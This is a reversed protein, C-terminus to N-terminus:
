DRDVARDYRDLVAVLDDGSKANRLATLLPAGVVMRALKAMMMLQAQRQGPPALTALCVDVVGEPTGYDVPPVLVFVGLATGCLEPLTGHPLALGDGVATNQARERTRLADLVSAGTAEELRTGFADAIHAFLADKSSAAVGVEAVTVFDRLRRSTAPTAQYGSFASQPLGRPSQLKLVSCAAREALRDRSSGRIRGLWSTQPEMSTIILDHGHSLDCLAAVVDESELLMVEPDHQSLDRLQDLYDAEAARLTPNAAPSLHRVFTLHSRHITALRDATGVVLADHPGPEVHVVIRRFYRIGADHFVALNTRLHDRLWGVPSRVTLANRSWGGWGMVLWRRGPTRTIAHVSHQIDRSLLAHTYIQLGREEAMARVRREISATRVDDGDLDEVTTQEPVETLQVVAIADGEALAEAIDILNEPSREHGFLGVVVAAEARGQEAPSPTLMEQRVARMAVVGQRHARSRGYGAYLGFALAGLALCTLLPQWGLVALLLCGSLVGLAQPLPYWPSRYVPKYWQPGVERLVVVTINLLVFIVIQFASALKAIKEGDLLLIAVAMLAASAVIANQPTLRTSHLQGFMAPMLRERAMAFPFRSAALVGANAMSTLALVGLLAVGGHVWRNATLERALSYVPHLDGALQEAGVVGVLVAATGCYLLTAIALSILFGLPLNRGPDHVENSIAAIKNIGGYAIFVMAVAQLFAVGDGMAPHLNEPKTALLAPVFLVGLGAIALAVVGLQVQSVKGVGRVNLAAIGALMALSIPVVPVPALATLYAGCGELAFASKLLLSLWLGVGAVTGMLPGFTREIYVYAGGAAPMATALEAKSLTTQLVCVAAVLYALWLGPGAKVVALGPLVFLGTGLMASLHIAVVATLRLRRETM